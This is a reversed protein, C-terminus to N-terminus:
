VGNAYVKDLPVFLCFGKSLEGGGGVGLVALARIFTQFVYFSTLSGLISDVFEGFGPVVM